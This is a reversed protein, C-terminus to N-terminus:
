SQNDPAPLRMQDVVQVDGAPLGKREREAQMFELWTMFREVARNGGPTPEALDVGAMKALDKAIAYALKLDGQEIARVRDALAVHVFWPEAEEAFFERAQDRWKARTIAVDSQINRFNATKFHKAAEIQIEPITLGNRYLREVLRRRAPAQVATAKLQAAKKSVRKSM